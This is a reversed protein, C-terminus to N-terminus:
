RAVRFRALEVKPYEWRPALASAQRYDYYAQRVRGARENAIARGFYAIEPRRTKLALGQDFMALPAQWDTENMRLLTFGKNVYSEPESEDLEIAKDFDALAESFDDRRLKLIGRNVHTAVVEYQTLAVDGRLAEDCRAIAMTTANDSEAAEYCLRAASNGLVLVGAAAPLAAAAAVLTFTLFGLKM